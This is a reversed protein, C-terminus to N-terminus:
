ADVTKLIFVGRPRSFPLRQFSLNSLKLYREVQFLLMASGEGATQTDAMFRGHSKNSFSPFAYPPSSRGFLSPNRAALPSPFIQVGNLSSTAHLSPDTISGRRRNLQLYELPVLPALSAGPPSPAQIIAPSAQTLQVRRSSSPRTGDM